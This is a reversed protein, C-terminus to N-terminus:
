YDSCEDRRLQRVSPIIHKGSSGIQSVLYFKRSTDIDSLEDYVTVSMKGCKREAIYYVDHRKTACFARVALLGDRPIKLYEWLQKIKTKKNM